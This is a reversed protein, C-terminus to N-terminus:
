KKSMVWTANPNALLGFILEFHFPVGQFMAKEVEGLDCKRNNLLFYILGWHNAVVEFM